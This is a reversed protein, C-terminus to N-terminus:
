QIRVVTRAASWLEELDYLERETPAFVHVIVDGFDLLVWGSDAAGERHISRTGAKKLAQEVEEAIAEIQRASEGSAIVFYDAFSCIQTVDLLVIDTAQKEGAAEAAKQALM